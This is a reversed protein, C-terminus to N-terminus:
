ALNLQWSVGFRDTLWGFKASFGYSDLPMLEGGGESLAAYLRDIEEATDCQVYLSVAPTFGFDHPMSSDICMLRQGAITFTAHQVQRALPGSEPGYHTMSLIAGDAFLSVYFNMAAEAQKGEFMLFTTIKPAAVTM